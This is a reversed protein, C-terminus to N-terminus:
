AAVEQPNVDEGNGNGNGTVVEVVLDSLQAAAEPKGMQHSCRAAVTLTPGLRLLSSLREALVEPSHMRSFSGAAGPM